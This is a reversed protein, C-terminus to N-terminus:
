LNQSSTFPPNLLINKLDREVEYLRMWANFASTNIPEKYRYRQALDKLYGIHQVVVDLDEPLLDHDM